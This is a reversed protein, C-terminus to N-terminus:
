LPIYLISAKESSIKITFDYFDQDIIEEGFFNGEVLFNYINKIIM